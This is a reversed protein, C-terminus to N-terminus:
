SLGTPARSGSAQHTAMLNKLVVIRERERSLDASPQSRVLELLVRLEKEWESELGQTM